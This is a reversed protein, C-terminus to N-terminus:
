DREDEFDILIPEEDDASISNGDIDFDLLNDDALNFETGHDLLNKIMKESTLGDTHKDKAISRFEIIEGEELDKDKAFPKAIMHEIKLMRRAEDEPVFSDLGILRVIQHNDFGMERLINNLKALSLPNKKTIEHIDKNTLGKSMLASISPMQLVKTPIDKSSAFKYLFNVLKDSQAFMQHKDLIEAANNIYEIASEVKTTDVDVKGNLYQEMDQLITNDLNAKKIM